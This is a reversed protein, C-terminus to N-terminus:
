PFRSQLARSNAQDILAPLRERLRAFADIAVARGEFANQARVAASIQEAVLRRTEPRELDFLRVCRTREAANRAIESLLDNCTADAAIAFLREVEDNWAAPDPDALAAFRDQVAIATELVSTPPAAGSLDWCSPIAVILLQHLDCQEQVSFAKTFFGRSPEWSLFGEAALRVLADRIPTASIGFHKELDGPILRRGPRLRGEIAFRKLYDHASSSKGLVDRLEIFRDM